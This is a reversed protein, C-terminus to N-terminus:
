AEEKEAGGVGNQAIDIINLLCYVAILVGAVPLAVYFVGVMVGLSSTKQGMALTTIQVGGYTLIIIGFLLSIVEGLIAFLKQVSPSFREVVVPINMHGREGTVLCAGFLSSWAFMYTVFEESWSSPSNLVYRTFVQWTVIIVMLLFSGGALVNLVTDLVKRLQKM